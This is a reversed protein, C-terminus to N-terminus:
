RQSGAARRARMIVPPHPHPHPHPHPAAARLSVQARVAVVVLLAAGLMHLVVLVIPLDAVYQVVGVLGQGLEGAVLVTWARRVRAPAGLAHLAVLTAISLGVLLLVLDAHLQSLAQPDLGNRPVDSSGAHPGSGTVVTGLVLVGALVALQAQGLHALPAPVLLRRDAGDDATRLLLLTSVAVLACSVLFHLGVTWPNLNTLVTIGGIM